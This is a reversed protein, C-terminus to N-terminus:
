YKLYKDYIAQYRGTQRLHELGANFDDRVKLDRFIPRYDNPNLEVFRHEEIPQQQFNREKKLKLSFYKFINRDSLVVDQRGKDLSLVQTEQDPQEHYNGAKAVPDLWLPYRNLAGQFAIVSLGKLDSPERIKLNRAKLTIFVNDYFVAPNGYHGGYLALDQGLDTMAADVEGAKFSFPVRAFPYYRPKLVHGRYALAEGIVELEIGTNTEPFCYPPIKEGFAMSVEAAHATIASTVLTLLLALRRM